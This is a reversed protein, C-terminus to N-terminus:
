ESTFTITSSRTHRLLGYPVSVDLVCDNYQYAYVRMRLRRKWQFTFHPPYRFLRDDTQPNSSLYKIITVLAGGDFCIGIIGVVIDVHKHLPAAVTEM